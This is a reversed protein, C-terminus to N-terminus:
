QITFTSGCNESGKGILGDHVWQTSEKHAFFADSQCSITWTEGAQLTKTQGNIGVSVASSRGNKIHWTTAKGSDARMQQRVRKGEESNWYAANKSQIEANRQDVKATMARVENQEEPTLPHAEQLNKMQTFYESVMQDLDKEMFAGVLPNGGGMQSKLRKLKEKFSLKKKKKGATDKGAPFWLADITFGTGDTELGTFEFLVGEILAYGRKTEINTIFAPKGYHDLRDDEYNYFLRKKDNSTDIADFGVVKGFANEIAVLHVKYRPDTIQQKGDDDKYINWYETFEIGDAALLASRFDTQAYTTTLTLAIVWHLLQKKM